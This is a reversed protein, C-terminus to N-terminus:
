VLCAKGGLCFTQHPRKASKNEFGMIDFLLNIVLSLLLLIVFHEKKDDALPILQEKQCLIKKVFSVFTYWHSKRCQELAIQM